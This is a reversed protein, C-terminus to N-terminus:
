LGRKYAWPHTESAFGQNERTVVSMSRHLAQSSTAVHDLSLTLDRRLWIQPAVIRAKVHALYIWRSVADDHSAEQSATAGKSLRRVM